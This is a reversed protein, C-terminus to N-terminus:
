PRTRPASSSRRRSTPSEKRPAATASARGAAGSASRRRRRACASPPPSAAEAEDRRGNAALLDAQRLRAGLDAPALRLAEDLLRLAGDVDGRDALLQELTARAGADDFRLALAKRLHQSAEALRDLSRAARAAALAPGPLLPFDRAAEFRMRRARSPLGAADWADALALRAAGGGRAAARELIPIARHARGRHLHHLGLALLAGPHDPAAALAEELHQRQRNGDPELRAALLRAEPSRPALAAARRAEELARREREDVSRKEVLALALDRRARAEDAGRAQRVRRELLAVVGPLREPGGAAPARPAPLPDLSGSPLRLPAGAPTALRLYLGLRGDEQSIKVLVRNPGKRLTAAVAVQDPRAPHAASDALALAGNVWLKVAGSAGLHLRVRQQRPSELVALAYATVERTPRMSAGLDVFGLRRAEAPVPRWRVQRVKGPMRAKLDQEREPPYVAEHGRRGEDDFPGAALWDEVFALRAVQAQSRTLSGRAREVEALAVRAWARVEPHAQEDEALRGYALAAQPLDALDDELARMEALLAIARPDAHDRELERALERFREAPPDAAEAARPALALALALLPAARPM